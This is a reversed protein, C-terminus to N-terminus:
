PIEGRELAANFRRNGDKIELKAPPPAAKGESDGATFVEGTSFDLPTYQREYPQPAPLAQVNPLAACEDIRRLADSLLVITPATTSCRGSLLDIATQVEARIDTLLATAKSIERIFIFVEMLLM